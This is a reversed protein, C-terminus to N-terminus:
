RQRDLAEETELFVHKPKEIDHFMGNATAWLLMMLFGASALLYNAMPTVAFVGGPDNRFTVAFEFFKNVFGLMSPILIAVALSLTVINRVRRNNM